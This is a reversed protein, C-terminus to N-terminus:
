QIQAPVSALQSLDDTFFLELGLLGYDTSVEVHGNGLTMDQTFFAVGPTPHSLIKAVKQHAGITSSTQAVLRGAGNYVSITYAVDTGFPNLLAIGTEYPEGNGATAGQAIHSFILNSSPVSDAPITADPNHVGDSFAFDTFGMIGPQDGQAILYGTQLQGSATIGFLNAVTDMLQGGAALTITNNTGLLNGNDDYATLNLNVPSTGSNVIGVQTSYGGGVALHPFFLRAQFDPSFGGLAAQRNGIGVVEVGSVPRDSQVRVYGSSLASSDFRLATQGKPAISATKQGVQSGSPSRLTATINAANVGPNFIVYTATGNADFEHRMFVLDTGANSLASAGTSFQSFDPDCILDFGAIRSASSALVGGVVSASLDYGFLEYDLIALQAEVGLPKSAPNTSGTLNSGSGSYATLAVQAASSTPNSFAIGTRFAGGLTTQTGSVVLPYILPYQSNAEEAGIDVTGQGPLGASSSVRLRGSFDLFPLDSVSNSGADIAPSTTKLSFDDPTLNNFQPDSTVVHTYSSSSVGQLNGSSNGYVISNAIYVTGGTFNVGHLANAYITNNILRANSGSEVLVGDGYGFSADTSRVIINNTLLASATAYLDVGGANDEILNSDAVLSVAPDSYIGYYGNNRMTNGLVRATPGLGTQTGSLLSLGADSNSDFVNNQAVLNGDAIQLGDGYLIQRYSLQTSQNQAFTNGKVTGSCHDLYSGAGYNATFISNSLDVNSGYADLGDNGNGQVTSNLVTLQTGDASYGSVIGTGQSGNVTSGTIDIVGGGDIWIGSAYSDGASNSIISQDITVSLPVSKSPQYLDIGTYGGSITLGKLLVNQLGVVTIASGGSSNLNSGDIVPAQTAAARIVVGHLPVGQGNTSITLGSQGVSYTASDQIEIVNGPQAADLAEALGSYFGRGSTSQSVPLVINPDLVYVGAWYPIRYVFSTNKSKATVFGQFGGSNPATVQISVNITLTVGAGISVNNQDFTISAGDVISEVGLTFQDSGSSINEIALPLSYSFSGTYSHVGFSLSTPSFVATAAFANGMNLLGSGAQLVNAANTGDV